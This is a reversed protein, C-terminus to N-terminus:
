WPWFPDVRIFSTTRRSDEKLRQLQNDLLDLKWQLQAEFPADVLSQGRELQLQAIEARLRFREVDLPHVTGPARANVANADQWTTQAWREEAEAQRLWVPFQGASQGATAQELRTEALKLDDQYEAVVNNPVSRAVRRNRQEARQLNAEALKLQARAYRVEISPAPADDPPQLLPALSLLTLLLGWHM